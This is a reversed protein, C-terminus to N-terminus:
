RSGLHIPRPSYSLGFSAVQFTGTYAIPAAASGPSSQHEVTYSAYVSLSRHGLSRSVQGSGVATDASFNALPLNTYLSTTQSYAATASANWVRAFTRSINASATDSHAGFAVGSGSNTGRTYSLSAAYRQITYGLSASVFLGTSTPQAVPVNFENSWQPGISATGTLRSSFQHSVQASATESEFGPYAAGYSSRSYSFNVGASTRSNFRHSVGVGGSEGNSDYGQGASDGIFRMIFYSGSFNLSDRATLRRTAGLSVINNVRAANTTLVNQVAGPDSAIPPVGLDGVGPIGSLGTTPTEPLYSVNDALVFNWSRTALVQSLGLSLYIPSPAGNNSWAKGGSFVMSFPDRKSNSIYAVDANLGTFSNAGSGYYGNSVSEYGSVGFSLSGQASPLSFGTSPPAAEAAPLAQASSRVALSFPLALLACAWVLHLRSRRGVPASTDHSPGPFTRLPSSSPLLTM